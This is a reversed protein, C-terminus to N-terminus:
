HFISFHKEGSLNLYSLVLPWEKDRNTKIVVAIEIKNAFGTVSKRTMGYQSQRYYKISIITVLYLPDHQYTILPTRTPPSVLSVLNPPLSSPDRQM